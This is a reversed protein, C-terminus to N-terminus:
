LTILEIYAYNPNTSFWSFFKVTDLETDEADLAIICLLTRNMSVPYVYNANTKKLFSDLSSQFNQVANHNMLETKTFDERQEGLWLIFPDFFESVCIRMKKKTLRYFTVLSNM